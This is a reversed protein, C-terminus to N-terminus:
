YVCSVDSTGADLVIGYGCPQSWVCGSCPMSNETILWRLAFGGMSLGLVPVALLCWRAMLSGVVGPTMSWWVSLIAALSTLVFTLIPPRHGWYVAVTADSENKEREDWFCDPFSVMQSIILPNVFGKDVVRGRDLVLVYAGTAVVDRVDHTVFCRSLCNVSASFLVRFSVRALDQAAM